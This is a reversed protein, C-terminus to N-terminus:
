PRFEKDDIPRNIEAKEITITLITQGNAKHTQIFPINIGDVIKYDTYFIDLLSKELETNKSIAQKKVLGYNAKSFFYTSTDADSTIFKIKFCDTAQVTDLGELIAQHGKAEYNIFPNELEVDAENMMARAPKGTISTKKTEGKFADIKWGAKGDFAQAFYKGQFPVVYKYLDPAKSYTTFPFVIGGYNYTGSTIITWVDKWHQEGGTFAIYRSIISDVTQAKSCFSAAFMVLFLIIKGFRM